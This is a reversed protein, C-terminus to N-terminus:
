IAGKSKTKGRLAGDYEYEQAIIRSERNVEYADEVTVVDGPELAPNQRWNVEYLARKNSEALIWEAVAQAHASSNILTNEVKLTAGGSVSGTAVYTGAVTDLDSYYNVEVRSILKDLNIQPEGYMNDMDITDVPEPASLRVINLYDDRDVYIACCGAVAIHQFLERYTQKKYLGQTSISSLAPDLRYKELGIATILSMALNHLNTSSPTTNEIEVAPLFDLRNRATFTATLSGEDSKWDSMFYYGMHVWEYTNPRVEVGLEVVVAQREQLFAYSGEPNLINFERSSNDVVFRLESAPVQASIPDIEELINVRFLNDDGYVRVVGFSVETVKARRYPKCWKLLTIVIRKYNALQQRDIVWRADTNGRVQHSWITGGNGDYVVIDFDTAYENAPEDFTITLGISSHPQTFTFDITQAPSFSGDPGSLAASYWGVEFGPEEPKPPLVFSGDLKWYDPEFTAYAPRDRVQNTLQAKRSIEAESTVTVSADDAATVDSIDFTVRASTRRSPAYIAQEFEPSTSIM